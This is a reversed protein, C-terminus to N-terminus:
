LAKRKCFVPTIEVEYLYGEMAEFSNTVFTSKLELTIENKNPLVILSMCKSPFDWEICEDESNIENFETKIGDYLVFSDHIYNGDNEYIINEETQSMGKEWCQVVVGRALTNISLLLSIIFLTKM